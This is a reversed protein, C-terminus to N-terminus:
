TFAKIGHFAIYLVTNTAAYADVTVTLQTLKKVTIPWPLTYARGMFIGGSQAYTLIWNTWEMKPPVAAGIPFTVLPRLAGSNEIQIGTPAGGYATGAANLQVGYIATCIFDGDEDMTVVGSQNRTGAVLPSIVVGFVQYSKKVGVYRPNDIWFQRLDVIM